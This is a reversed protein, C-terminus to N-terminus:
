FNNKDHFFPSPVDESLAVQLTLGKEEALLSVRKEVMHILEKLEFRASIIEIKGAEIKSLDLIDNIFGLLHEAGFGLLRVIQLARQRVLVVDEEMRILVTLIHAYM